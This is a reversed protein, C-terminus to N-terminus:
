KLLQHIITPLIVQHPLVQWWPQRVQTEDRSGRLESFSNGSRWVCAGNHLGWACAAIGASALSGSGPQPEQPSLEDDLKATLVNAWRALKSAWLMDGELVM